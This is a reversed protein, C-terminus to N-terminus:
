RRLGENQGGAHLVTPPATTLRLTSFDGSGLKTNIIKTDTQMCERIKFWKM